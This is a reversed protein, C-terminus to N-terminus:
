RRAHRTRPRRTLRVLDSPLRVALTSSTAEGGMRLRRWCLALTQRWATRLFLPQALAERAYRREAQTLDLEAQIVTESRNNALALVQSDPGVIKSDGASWLSKGQPGVSNAFVYYVQNEFARVAIGDRGRHKTRSVQASDLGANPHFVIQAGMMVPLRVLEPYRREHCIIATAPVGDLRFFALSNGPTFFRADRTTLHIKSYRFVQRGRRNFVLLSNFWKGRRFTPSGVLVNCRAERAARAVAACGQAVSTPRLEKFERQYGTIACEPFLIVDAGDRAASRIAEVIREVNEHITSRFKM